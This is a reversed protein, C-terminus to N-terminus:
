LLEKKVGEPLPYLTILRYCMNLAWMAIETKKGTSGYLSSVSKNIIMM